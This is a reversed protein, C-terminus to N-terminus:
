VMNSFVYNYAHYSYQGDEDGIDDENCFTNSNVYVYYPAEDEMTEYYSLRKCWGSVVSPDKQWYNIQFCPCDRCFRVNIPTLKLRTLRRDRIDLISDLDKESYYKM